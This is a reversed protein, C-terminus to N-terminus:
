PGPCGEAPYNCSSLGMGGDIDVDEFSFNQCSGDGCFIYYDTAAPVVWGSINSFSINAVLVGNSAIGSSGGNLYDQEIDIGYTKINSVEINSYTVNVVSGTANYDTKIRLGNTSNAVVSDTFRLEILLSAGTSHEYECYILFTTGPDRGVVLSRCGM